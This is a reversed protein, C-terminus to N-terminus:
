TGGLLFLHHKFNKYQFNPLSNFNATQRVAWAVVLNFDTLFKESAYICIHGSKPFGETHSKKQSFRTQHINILEVMSSVIQWSQSLDRAESLLYRAKNAIM